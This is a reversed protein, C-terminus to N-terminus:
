GDDAEAEAMAELIAALGPEDVATAADDLSMWRVQRQGQEKWAGLQETVELPYVVVAVFDFRDIRRKWYTFSGLPKKRAKGILGAEQEAEIAAARRDTRGKMRWGKPVTWRGTERTTVLCVELRGDVRRMPLAAVQRLPAVAGTTSLKPTPTQPM